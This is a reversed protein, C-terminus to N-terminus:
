RGEVFVPRSAAPEYPWGEAAPALARFQFRIGRSDDDAFAYRYGFRGHADTQVTRFESWPMGPVRFQLEVPRGSSPIRAGLGDVRGSFLVPRGGVTARASSARLRVSALVGLRLQGSGSRSLVRNGGFAAEIRRSPGPALRASFRGEADTQVTTTRVGATSGSDFTEVIGVPMGPLPAGSASTLLGAVTTGHGYGTSRTRPRSGFDEIVQRHCRRGADVRTCRQWVLRRGGFGFQLSTPRKLPNTLVMRTGDGRRDSSAANGAEDYATARFEYSGPPYSDSDWITSLRDASVDTPLPQFPAASGAPRVAISGRDPDPGSLGDEVLAEIREPEAPDQSRAFRVQPASEDIRVAATAPAPSGGAGASVNGAADRAYYAVTHVGDGSVTSTASDGRAVAAAGGDVAIATSPGAAGAPAMGSLWDHAAATVRVPGRAWGEPVGNLSVAPATLDVRVDVKTVALSRTGSSSVTAVRVVNV